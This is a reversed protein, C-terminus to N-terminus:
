RVVNKKLVDNIRVTRRTITDRKSEVKRKLLKNEFATLKLLQLLEFLPFLSERVASSNLKKSPCEDTKV